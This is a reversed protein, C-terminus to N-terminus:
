VNDAAENSAETEKFEAMDDASLELDPYNAKIHAPDGKYFVLVNQHVRTLKRNGFAAAARIAATGVSNILVAENYLQMGANVFIDKIDWPLGRYFGKKDRVDSVVIVAFRDTKLAEIASLFANQIIPLYGEYYDKQNSADNPLDSYKELDFYPPCSFVMDVSNAPVHKAINQGDDCIYTALKSCRKTNLDCQEQRLEIGTFPHELYTAVYGFVTDGAFPDVIKGGPPCFWRVSIEALVADLISVTPMDKDFKVSQLSKLGLKDDRSEGKENMLEVWHKKRQQWYERRTDLISFPPVLFKKELQGKHEEDGALVLRDLGMPENFDVTFQAPDDLQINPLENALLDQDYFGARDNDSLAYEWRANDDKPAVVSVWPNQLETLFGQAEKLTVERKRIDEMKRRLKDVPLGALITHVKIRMNGGLVTGDDTVLFPKYQGLRLIQYELRGFGSKTISRPNKVWEHLTALPQRIKQETAM